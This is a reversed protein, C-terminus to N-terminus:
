NLSTDVMCVGTTINHLHLHTLNATYVNQGSSFSMHASGQNTFHIINSRRLTQLHWQILTYKLDSCPSFFPGLFSKFFFMVSM